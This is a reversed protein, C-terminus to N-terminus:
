AVMTAGAVDLFDAYGPNLDLHCHYQRKPVM